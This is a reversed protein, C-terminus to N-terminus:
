SYGRENRELLIFAQDEKMNTVGHHAMYMSGHDESLIFKRLEDNPLVYIIDKYRLLRNNELSYTEFRSVMM